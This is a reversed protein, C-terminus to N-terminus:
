SFVAWGVEIAKIKEDHVGIQFKAPQMIALLMDKVLNFREFSLIIMVLDPLAWWGDM